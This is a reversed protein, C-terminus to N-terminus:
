NKKVDNYITHLYKEHTMLGALIKFMIVQNYKVKPKLSRTFLIEINARPMKMTFDNLSTLSVDVNGRYLHILLSIIGKRLHFISLSLCLHATKFHVLPIAPCPKQGKLVILIINTVTQPPLAELYKLQSM